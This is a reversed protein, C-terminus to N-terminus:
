PLSAKCQAEQTYCDRTVEEPLKLRGDPLKEIKGSETM